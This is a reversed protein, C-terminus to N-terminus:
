ANAPIILASVASSVHVAADAGVFTYATGLTGVMFSLGYTPWGGLDMHSATASFIESATGKPAYYTLPILIGFFGLVHLIFFAGEIAPLLSAVVTNIVVCLLMVAWTILAAQYPQQMQEYDPYNIACIAQIITAVLFATGAGGATWALCTMWGIMYSAFNRIRRPALMAIWHYQGGAVPAMSALEGIVTYM